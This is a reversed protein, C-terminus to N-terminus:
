RRRKKKRLRRINPANRISVARGERDFLVEGKRAMRPKKRVVRPNLPPVVAFGLPPQGAVRAPARLSSVFPKFATGVEQFLTRRERKKGAM